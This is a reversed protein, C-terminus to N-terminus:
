VHKDGTVDSDGSYRHMKISRKHAVNWSKIWNVHNENVIKIRNSKRMSELGPMGPHM